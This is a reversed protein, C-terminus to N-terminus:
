ATDAQVETAYGQSKEDVPPSGGEVGPGSTAPQQNPYHGGAGQQLPYTQYPSNTPVQQQQREPMGPYIWQGPFQGM